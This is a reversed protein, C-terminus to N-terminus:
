VARTLLQPLSFVSSFPLFSVAKSSSFDREGRWSKKRKREEGISLIKTSICEERQLDPQYCIWRALVEPFCFTGIWMTIPLVVIKAVKWPVPFYSLRLYSQFREIVWLKVTPWIQQWVVVPLGDPGPAKWSSMRTLATEIELPAIEEDAAQGGGVREPYLATSPLIGGPTTPGKRTTMLPVTVRACPPLEPSLPDRRKGFIM